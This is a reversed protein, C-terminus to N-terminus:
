CTGCKRLYKWCEQCTVVGLGDLLSCAGQSDADNCAEMQIDDLGTCDVKRVVDKCGVLEGEVKVVPMVEVKEADVLGVDLVTSGQAEVFVTEVESGIGFSSFSRVVFGDVDFFGSNKISVKTCGDSSQANFNINECELVGSAFRVMSKGLQETQRVQWSYVATGIAVALGLLLITSIIPAIANRKCIDKEHKRTKNKKSLTKQM